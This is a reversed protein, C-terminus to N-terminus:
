PVLAVETCCAACGKPELLWYLRQASLCCLRPRAVVLEYGETCVPVVARCSSCDRHVPLVVELELVQALVGETCLSSLGAWLWCVVRHVPLVVRSWINLASGQAPCLM